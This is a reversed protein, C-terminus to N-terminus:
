EIDYGQDKMSKKFAAFAREEFGVIAQDYFNEHPQGVNNRRRRGTATEARRVPSDFRHSPDRGTITGYNKWYAHFWEPGVRGSEDQWKRDLFMGFVASVDGSPQAKVSSKVLQRSFAPVERKLNRVEGSCAARLAKKVAKVLEGPAEDFMRLVDSVGEIRAEAM